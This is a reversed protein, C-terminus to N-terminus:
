FAMLNITDPSKKWYKEQAQQPWLGLVNAHPTGPVCYYLFQQTFALLDDYSEM